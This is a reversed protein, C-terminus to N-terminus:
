NVDQAVEQVLAMVAQNDNLTVRELEIMYNFDRTSTSTQATIGIWLDRIIIHSPDIVGDSWAGITTDGNLEIATWAFQRRDEWAWQIVTTIAPNPIADRHTALVGVCDYSGLTTDHVAPVSVYFKTVRWGDNFNGDDIVINTLGGYQITPIRGRLVRRNKM